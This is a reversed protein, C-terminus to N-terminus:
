LRQAVSLFYKKWILTKRRMWSKLAVVKDHDDIDLVIDETRRNILNEANENQRIYFLVGKENYYFNMSTGYATMVFDSSVSYGCINKGAVQIYGCTQCARDLESRLFQRYKAMAKSIKWLKQKDDGFVTIDDVYRIYPRCHLHEKVYHDLGDLYINAFFQSTLNGIPIGRRRELPTLLNDGPYYQM